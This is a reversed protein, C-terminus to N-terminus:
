YCVNKRHDITLKTISNFQFHKYLTQEGILMSLTSLFKHRKNVYCKFVKTECTVYKKKQGFDNKYWSNFSLAEKLDNKVLKRLYFSFQAGNRKQCTSKTRKQGLVFTKGTKYNFFNRM